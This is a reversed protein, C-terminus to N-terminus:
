LDLTLVDSKSRSCCITMMKGSAREEDSLVYDRHDPEGSCVNTVCTGCLGERCSFPHDIGHEELVELISKQEPVEFEVGSRELRVTFSNSEQPEDSEPKTFWEFRVAGSPFDATLDKVANMLADPGCCYIREGETWSSIAQAADLIQGREDDFHFHRDGGLACLEEYFAARQRSRAAYVLRWPKRNAVCWRVRALIPTIGIGGASFLFSAAEPDLPFNNRPASIKLQAGSRINSHVYSSGGRSDAARGVGILYRDRERWDNTLSYQRVLGNPLHLDLHSGPEFPPLEGGGVARLELVMVDRAEARVDAVQVTLTQAANSMATGPGITGHM